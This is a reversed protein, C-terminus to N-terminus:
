ASDLALEPTTWVVFDGDRKLVGNIYDRDVPADRLDSPSVPTVQTVDDVVWGLHGQEEIQEPDFVVILQRDADGDDIDLPEKPDILATVKGRLDVVGEVFPPSNPVRTIGDTEVIEEVYSIDLCYREDGLEFELVRVQEEGGDDAGERDESEKEPDTGPEADDAIGTAEESLDVGEDIQGAGAEIEPVTIDEDAGAEPGPGPTAAGGAHADSREADPDQETTEEASEAKEAAGMEDEAAETADDTESARRGERMQRIREARDMRDDDTM